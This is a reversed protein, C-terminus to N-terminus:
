AKFNQRLVRQKGLDIWLTNKCLKQFGNSGGFELKFEATEFIVLFDCVEASGM